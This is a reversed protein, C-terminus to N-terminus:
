TSTKCGIQLILRCRRGMLLIRTIADLTSNTVIEATLASVEKSREFYQDDSFCQTNLTIREYWASIVWPPVGAPESMTYPHTASGNSTALAPARYLKSIATASMMMTLEGGAAAIIPLSVIEM